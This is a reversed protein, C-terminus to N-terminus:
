KEVQKVTTELKQPIFTVVMNLITNSLPTFIAKIGMFINIINMTNSNPHLHFITTLHINIIGISIPSSLTNVTGTCTRGTGQLLSIIFNHNYKKM